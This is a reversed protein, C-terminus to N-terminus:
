ESVVEEFTHPCPPFMTEGAVAAAKVAQLWAYSTVLKPHLALAGAEKVQFLLDMCTVLRSATYGAREVAGEGSKICRQIYAAAAAEIGEAPWDRESLSDPGHNRIKIASFNGAKVRGIVRFGNGEPAQYVVTQVTQNPEGGVQNPAVNQPNELAASFAADMATNIATLDM